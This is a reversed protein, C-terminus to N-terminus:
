RFFGCENAIDRLLTDINKSQNGNGSQLNKRILQQYLALGKKLTELGIGKGMLYSIGWLGFQYNSVYISHNISSIINEIGEIAQRWDMTDHRWSYGGGTLGFKEKEREIPADQAYYFLCLQYFTPNTEELFQITQMLTEQTEGPYGVIISVYTIIGRKNLQAICKKYEDPNAKKNMNKLIVPNASEIGMFVGACGSEKMLDFIDDSYNLGRFFSFWRFNFKNQIMMELIDRFRSVPVNFSDDNFNLYRVGANFMQRMEKELSELGKKCWPGAMVPYKCFTCRFPCSRTTRILSSPTFIEPPIKEWDILNKDLDNDEVCRPSRIFANSGKDNKASRGAPESIVHLGSPFNKSYYLNTLNSFDKPGSKKLEDLLRALSSEGQSDTIYIDAGIKGFLYILSSEDLLQSMDYIYPGGVVIVTSSSYKRMFRVLKIIPKSDLYFTTNIAVSLPNKKLLKILKEENQDFSNIIEVQFNRKELFSKLYCLGLNPLEMMRFSPSINYKEEFLVNLLELFHVWRGNYNVVKTKMQRYNGSWKKSKENESLISQLDIEHYGVLICDM